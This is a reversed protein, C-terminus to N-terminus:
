LIEKLLQEKYAKFKKITILEHEALYKIFEIKEHKNKMKDLLLNLDIREFLNKQFNKYDERTICKKNFLQRLFDFFKIMDGKSEIKQLDLFDTVMHLKKNSYEEQTIFEKDIITKLEILNDMLIEKKSTSSVQRVEKKQKKLTQIHHGIKLDEELIHDKLWGTLFEILETADVQQTVKIKLLLKKIDKILAEHLKKHLNYDPFSITKMINEEDSFHHQAYSIIFKVTHAMQQELTNTTISEQLRDIMHVLKKHQQDIRAIGTSYDSLWEM